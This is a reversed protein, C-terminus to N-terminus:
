KTEGKLKAIEAQAERYLENYKYIVGQQKRLEQKQEEIVELLLRETTSESDNM